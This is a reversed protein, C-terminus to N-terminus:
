RLEVRVEKGSWFVRCVKETERQLSALKEKLEDREKAAAEYMDLVQNLRCQDTRSSRTSGNDRHIVTGCFKSDCFPCPEALSM